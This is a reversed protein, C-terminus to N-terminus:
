SEPEPQYGADPVAGPLRLARRRGGWEWSRYVLDSPGPVEHVDRLATVAAEALREYEASTAPWPLLYWYNDGWDRTDAQPQWGVARLLREGRVTLHGPKGDVVDGPTEARLQDPDQAFQVYREEHGRELVILIADRPLKALEGALASAFGTWDDV